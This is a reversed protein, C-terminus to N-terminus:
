EALEIQRKRMDRLRILKNVPEILLYPFCILLGILSYAMLFFSFYYGFDYQVTRSYVHDTFCLTFIVVTAIMCQNFLEFTRLHWDLYPKIAALLWNFAVTTLLLAIIQMLISDICVTVLFLAVRQALVLFPYMKSPKSILNANTYLTGISNEIWNKLLTKKSLFPLMITFALPVLLM